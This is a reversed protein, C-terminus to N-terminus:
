FEAKQPDHRILVHPTGNQGVEIRGAPWSITGHIDFISLAVIGLAVTFVVGLLFTLILAGARRRRAQVPREFERTVPREGFDRMEQVQAM